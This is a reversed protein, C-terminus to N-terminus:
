FWCPCAANAKNAKIWQHPVVFHQFCAKSGRVLMMTSPICLLLSVKSLRAPAANSSSFPCCQGRRCNFCQKCTKNQLVEWLLKRGQHCRVFLASKGANFTVDATYWCYDASPESDGVAARLRLLGVTFPPIHLAFRTLYVAGANSALGHGAMCLWQMRRTKVLSVVHTM